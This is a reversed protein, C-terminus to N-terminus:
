PSDGAAAIPSRTGTRRDVIEAIEYYAGRDAGAARSRSRWAFALVSRTLSFLRALNYSSRGSSRPERRYPVVTKPVDLWCLAMFYNFDPDNMRLVADVVRRSVVGFAGLESDFPRGVALAFMAVYIKKVAHRAASRYKGTRRGFVIDVDGRAARYLDPIAEPPDQLDCDMVVAHDGASQALGAATALSQGVNRALRCAVVKADREALARMMPWAGDEARDDVLILEFRDTLTSVAATIRRHLLRVTAACGYVPVVVSLVTGGQRGPIERPGKLDEGGGVPM